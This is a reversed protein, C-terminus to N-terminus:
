AGESKGLTSLSSSRTLYCFRLFFLTSIHPKFLQKQFSISIYLKYHGPFQSWKIRIDSGKLLVLCLHAPHSGGWPGCSGAVCYRDLEWTLCVYSNMFSWEWPASCEELVQKTCPVYLSVFIHTKGQFVNQPKENILTKDRWKETLSEPMQCLSLSLAWLM